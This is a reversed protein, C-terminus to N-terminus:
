YIPTRGQQVEHKLVEFDIANERNWFTGDKIQILLKIDEQLAKLSPITQNFEYMINKAKKLLNREYVEQLLANLEPTYKMIAWLIMKGEKCPEIAWVCEDKIASVLEELYPPKISCDMILKLFAANEADKDNANFEIGWILGRKDPSIKDFREQLTKM